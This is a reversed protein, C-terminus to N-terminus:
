WVQWSELNTKIRLGDQYVQLINASQTGWHLNSARCDERINNRHLVVMGEPRPGEFATCILEHLYVLRRDLRDNMVASVRLYRDSKGGRSIRGNRTNLISGDRKARYFDFGPIIYWGRHVDCRKPVYPLVKM